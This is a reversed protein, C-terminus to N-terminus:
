SLDPLPCPYGYPFSEKQTRSMGFLTEQARYRFRHTMLRRPNMHGIKAFSRKERTATKFVSPNGARYVHLILDQVGSSSHPFFTTRKETLSYGISSSAANGSHHSPTIALCSYPCIQSNLLKSFDLFIQYKKPPPVLFFATYCGIKEVM